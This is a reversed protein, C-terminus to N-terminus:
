MQIVTKTHFLCLTVSSLVVSPVFLLDDLCFFFNRVTDLSNHLSDPIFRYSNMKILEYM